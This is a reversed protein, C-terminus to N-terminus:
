FGTKARPALKVKKRNRREHERRMERGNLPNVLFKGKFAGKILHDSAAGVNSSLTSSM